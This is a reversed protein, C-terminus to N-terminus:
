AIYSKIAHLQEMTICNVCITLIEQMQWRSLDQLQVEQKKIQEILIVGAEENDFQVLKDVEDEYKFLLRLIVQPPFSLLKEESVTPMNNSGTSLAYYLKMVRYYWESSVGTDDSPNYEKALQSAREKALGEEKLSVTRMVIPNNEYDITVRQNIGLQINALFNNDNVLGGLKAKRKIDALAKDKSIDKANNLNSIKDAIEDIIQENNAKVTM